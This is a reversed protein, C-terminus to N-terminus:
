IKYTGPLVYEGSPDDADKPIEGRSPFRVGKNRLDWTVTNWGEELKENIRRITDGTSSLVVLKLINKDKDEEKKKISDASIAVQKPKEVKVEGEAAKAKAEAKEKENHDSPPVAKPPEKKEAPKVYVPI